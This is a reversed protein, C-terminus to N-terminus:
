IVGLMCYGRTLDFKSARITTKIVNRFKTECDDWLIYNLTITPHSFFLQGARSESRPIRYLFCDRRGLVIGACQMLKAFQDRRM